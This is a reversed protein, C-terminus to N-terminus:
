AAAAAARRRRATGALGLLGSGFLWAAAPVPVAPAQSSLTVNLDYKTWYKSTEGTEPDTVALSPDENYFSWVYSGGNAPVFSTGTHSPKSPAYQDVANSNNRVPGIFVGALGGCVATSTGADVLPVACGTMAAMVGAGTAENMTFTQNFNGTLGFLGITGAGAWSGANTADDWTGSYVVSLDGSASYNRSGTASINWVTANAAGAAALVSVALIAKISKM